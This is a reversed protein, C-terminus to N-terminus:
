SGGAGFLGAHTPQTEATDGVGGTLGPCTEQVDHKWCAVELMMKRINDLCYKRFIMVKCFELTKRGLFLEACTYLGMVM